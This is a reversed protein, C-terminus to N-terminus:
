NVEKENTTSITTPPMSTLELEKEMQEKRMQQQFETVELYNRYQQFTTILNSWMFGLGALGNFALVVKYWLPFDFYIIFYTISIVLGIMILAISMMGAEYQVQMSIKSMMRALPDPFIYRNKLKEKSM